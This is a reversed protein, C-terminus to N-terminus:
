WNEFGFFEPVDSPQDSKLRSVGELLRIYDQAGGVIHVERGQRKGTVVTSIVGANTRSVVTRPNLCGICSRM